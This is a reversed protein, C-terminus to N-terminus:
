AHLSGRGVGREYVGAAIMALVGLFAPGWLGTTGLSGTVVTTLVVTTLALAASAAVDQLRTEHPPAGNSSLAELIVGVRREVLEEPVLLEPRYAARMERVLRATARCDLCARLHHQVAPDANDGLVAELLRETDPCSM